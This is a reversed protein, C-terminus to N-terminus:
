HHHYSPLDNININNNTALDRMEKSQIISSEIRNMRIKTMPDPRLSLRSFNLDQFIAPQRFCLRVISAQIIRARVKQGNSATV